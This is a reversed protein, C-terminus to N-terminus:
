WNCARTAPPGRLVQGSQKLSTPGSSLSSSHRVWRMSIQVRFGRRAYALIGRRSPDRSSKHLSTSPYHIHLSYLYHIHVEDVTRPKGTHFAASQIFLVLKKKLSLAKARPITVSDNSHRRTNRADSQIQLQIESLKYIVEKCGEPACVFIPTDVYAPGVNPRM